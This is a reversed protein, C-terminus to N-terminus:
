FSPNTVDPSNATLKSVDIGSREVVADMHSYMQLAGHLSLINAIAREEIGKGM